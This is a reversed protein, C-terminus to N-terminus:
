QSSANMVLAIRMECGTSDTTLGRRPFLWFTSSTSGTTSLHPSKSARPECDNMEGICSSQSTQRRAGQSSFATIFKRVKERLSPLPLIAAANFLASMPSPLSTYSSQHATGASHCQYVAARQFTVHFTPKSQRNFLMKSRSRRCEPAASLFHEGGSYLEAESFVSSQSGARIVKCRM